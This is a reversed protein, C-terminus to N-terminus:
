RLESLVFSRHETQNRGYEGDTGGEEKVEIEEEDMSNIECAM